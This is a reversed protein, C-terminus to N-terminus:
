LSSINFLSSVLREIYEKSKTDKPSSVEKRTKLLQSVSFSAPDKRTPSSEREKLPSRLPSRLLPSKPSTMSQTESAEVMISTAISKVMHQDKDSLIAYSELFNRMKNVFVEFKIDDTDIFKVLLEDVMDIDIKMENLLWRLTPMNFTKKNTTNYIRRMEDERSLLNNVADCLRQIDSTSQYQYKLELKRFYHNLLNASIYPQQTSPNILALFEALRKVESEQLGAINLENIRTIFAQKGISQLPAKNYSKTEPNYELFIIQPNLRKFILGSKLKGLIYEMRMIEFNETASFIKKCFYNISM